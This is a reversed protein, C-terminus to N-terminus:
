GGALKAQIGQKELLLLLKDRHDGQIELLEGKIAGGTGLQAKLTKLLKKLCEDNLALGDVICVTKGGRGKSERRIRVGQKNPNKIAPSASANKRRKKSASRNKQMPKDLSGQETSYVLRRNESM